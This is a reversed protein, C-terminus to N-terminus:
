GHPCRVPSSPLAAMREVRERDVRGEPTYVVMYHEPAAPITLYAATFRLEGVGSHRFVKRASRAPAVEQRAWLERFTGSAFALERIYQEWVPEGVHKGYAARLVGVMRPLEEDRNLFTNCCAPSTVACWLTNFTGHPTTPREAGFLSEYPANHLLVDYRSNCVAAPLPALADLIVQTSADLHAHAAGGRPQPPVGALRFLHDRETADLRLSGAVAALVQESANIPRGQELWTYWTVGVGALQAVEERRLGPTRRRLGPPLGVDEPAVRARCAKLFRTLETRRRGDRRPAPSEDLSEDLTTMRSM